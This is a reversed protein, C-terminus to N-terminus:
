GTLQKFRALIAVSQQITVVVFEFFPPKVAVGCSLYSLLDQVWLMCNFRPKLCCFDVLASTCRTQNKDRVIQLTCDFFEARIKKTTKRWAVSRPCRHTQDSILFWCQVGSRTIRQFFIVTLGCWLVVGPRIYILASKQQKFGLNLQLPFVM